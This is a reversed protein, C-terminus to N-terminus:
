IYNHTIIVNKDYLWKLEHAPRPKITKETSPM